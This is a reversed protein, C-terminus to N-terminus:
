HFSWGDARGVPRAPVGAVVDGAAVDSTVVAHAAVVAGDGITVGKLVIAGTGIWVHDGIVVPATMPQAVGDVSIAHFDNDTIQADWSITCFRGITVASGVFIKSLGNVNTGHGIRLAGSDVVVRVGRQLSVVGYVDLSAGPRVRVVSVDHRSTAGFPGLGIRLQAGPGHLHIRSADDLVTRSGTWIQRGDLVVHRLFGAYFAPMSTERETALSQALERYVGFGDPEHEAARADAIAARLRVLRPKLPQVATLTHAPLNM